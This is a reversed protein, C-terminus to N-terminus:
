RAAPGQQALITAARQVRSALRRTRGLDVNEPPIFTVHAGTEDVFLEAYQGLRKPAHPGPVEFIETVVPNEGLEDVESVELRLHGYVISLRMEYDTVM